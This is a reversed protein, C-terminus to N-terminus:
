WAGGALTAWSAYKHVALGAFAPSAQLGLAIQELADRFRGATQGCFTVQPPDVCTTEVAVLVPRGQKAAAALIPVALSTVEQARNRYAMLVIGASQELVLEDLARGGVQKGPFWFPITHWVGIGAARGAEAVARLLDGYAAGTAEPATRWDPLLYPEVDFLVRGSRPLGRAALRAEIRAARAVLELAAGRHAPLAWAPDGGVLTITGGQRSAAGVLAALAEFKPGQEYEPEAQVFLVGVRQARAFALLDGRSKEALVTAEDWVWTARSDGTAARSSSPAPSLAPAAAGGPTRPMCALGGATIAAVVLSRSSM